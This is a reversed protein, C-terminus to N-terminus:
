LFGWSHSFARGQSGSGEADTHVQTDADTTEVTTDQEDIANTQRRDASVKQAEENNRVNSANRQVLGSQLVSGALNPPMTSM